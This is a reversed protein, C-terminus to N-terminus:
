ELAFYIVIGILLLTLASQRDEDDTKKAVFEPSTYYNPMVNGGTMRTKDKWFHVLNDRRGLSYLQRSNTLARSM